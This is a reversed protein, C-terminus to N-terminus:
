QKVTRCNLKVAATSQKKLARGVVEVVELFPFDPEREDGAKEGAEPVIRVAYRSSPLGSRELAEQASRMRQKMRSSTKKYYSGVVVGTSDPQARLREVLKQLVAKYDQESKLNDANGINDETLQAATFAENSAPMSAGEPVGWLETAALASRANICDTSRLLTIRERTYGSYQKLNSIVTFPDAAAIFVAVPLPDNSCLRIAVRGNSGASAAAFEATETLRHLSYGSEFRHVMRAPEQARAAVQFAVVIFTALLTLKM